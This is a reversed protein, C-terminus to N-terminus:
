QACYQATGYNVTKDDTSHSFLSFYFTGYPGFGIRGQDWMWTFRENYNVIEKQLSSPLETSNKMTINVSRLGIKVAISANIKAKHGAKYQTISVVRGVEWEQGFNGVVCM